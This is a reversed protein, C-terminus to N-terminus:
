WRYNFTEIGNIFNRLKSLIYLIILHCSVNRCIRVFIINSFVNIVKNTIQPKWAKKMSKLFDQLVDFLRICMSRSYCQIQSYGICYFQVNLILGGKGTNRSEYTKNFLALFGYFDTNITHYHVPAEHFLQNTLDFSFVLFIFQIFTFIVQM